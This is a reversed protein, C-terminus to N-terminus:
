SEFYKHYWKPWKKYYYLNNQYQFGILNGIDEWMYYIVNNGTKGFIIHNNELYGDTEMGTLKKCISYWRKITRLLLM